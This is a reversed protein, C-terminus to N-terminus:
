TLSQELYKALSNLKGILERSQAYLESTQDAKAFDLKEAIQLASVTELLSGRAQYLFRLFDKDTNRGKGEAINLAVSNAARRIQSTLGFREEAPFSQSLLYIEAILAMALHYVELQEFSFGAEIAQSKRGSVHSM